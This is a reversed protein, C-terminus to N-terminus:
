KPHNNRLYGIHSICGHLTVKALEKYTTASLKGNGTVDAKIEKKEKSSIRQISCLGQYIALAKSTKMTKTVDPATSITDSSSEERDRLHMFDNVELISARNQETIYINKLILALNMLAFGVTLACSYSRHNKAKKAPYGSM